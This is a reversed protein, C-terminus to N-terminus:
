RLAALAAKAETLDFVNDIRDVLIGNSDVLFLSPEFSLGIEQVAPALRIDPDAPNGGVEETNAYVEVHVIDVPAADAAAEILTDLVPGCYATSCFAPTAVLLAAPRGGGVVSAFDIGHFPCPEFRTCLRDVGSPDDFTPTTVAPIPDGPLPVTVESPDFAQIPLTAVLGPDFPSDGDGLVVELDYIGPEPPTLRPPYYRFLDAHQHDADVEGVHDHDVVHGKVMVTEILEGGRTLRIEVAEDDAPLAVNGGSAPMAIAIPIRQRLGAAIVRDPSFLAVIDPAVQPRGCAALMSGAGGFAIVGTAGAVTAGAQSLFRRRSTKSPEAMSKFRIGM